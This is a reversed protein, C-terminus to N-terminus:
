TSCKTKSSLFISVWQHTTLNSPKADKSVGCKKMALDIKDSQFFRKLNNRIPQGQGYGILVFQQYKEKQSNSLLPNEKKRFSLMVVNVKHTPTFDEPKFHYIISFDFWPKHSISFLNEKYPAALRYALEKMVVLYCDDPPNPNDILKRIIKGEISFHVNAFVKYPSKPLSLTLFDDNYIVLNSTNQFRNKLFNYWHKDLEVTVVSGAKKVLERTIIGKGPGIELVLDSKGISSDGVLKNVLKHSHLFNQSLLKRRLDYM